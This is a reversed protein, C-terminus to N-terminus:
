QSGGDAAPMTAPPAAPLLPEIPGAGADTPAPAEDAKKTERTHAVQVRYLMGREIPRLAKKPVNYVIDAGMRCAETRMRNLCTVESEDLYCDVQLLGIDDWVKMEPMGNFIQLACGPPRRPYRADRPASGSCSAAVVALVVASLGFRSMRYALPM